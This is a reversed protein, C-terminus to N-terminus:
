KGLIFGKSKDWYKGINQLLQSKSNERCYGVLQNFYNSAFDRQIDSGVLALAVFRTENNLGSELCAQYLVKDRAQASTVLVSGVIAIAAILKKM